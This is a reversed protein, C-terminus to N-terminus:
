KGIIKVDNSFVKAVEITRYRLNIFVHKSHQKQKFLAHGYTKYGIVRALLHCSREFDIVENAAMTIQEAYSMYQTMTLIELKAITEIIDSLSVTEEVNLTETLWGHLNNKNLFSELHQKLNESRHNATLKKPDPKSPLHIIEVM